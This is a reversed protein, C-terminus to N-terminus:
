GFPLSADALLEPAVVKGSRILAEIPEGADWINVNMGALVRGDKLWFAVFEYSEVDGRFVVHDYGEPGVYGRYEMGLDYQDTFFYPLRDYEATEGLMGAAAVAPQNLAASWHEVRIHRGFLPHYANAVDGAAFIDPDSTRLAADVVVGGGSVTLGAQQALEVNPAAGVGAVVADAAYVTGDALRAGHAHVAAIQAGFRLDVGHALHLDAFVRAAEPGLAHLLPLRLSELVTVSLGAARAAAAVEMGIWGAGIVVLRASPTSIV